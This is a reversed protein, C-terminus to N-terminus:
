KIFEAILDLELEMMPFQTPTEKSMNVARTLLNSLTHFEEASLSVGVASFNDEPVDGTVNTWVKLM